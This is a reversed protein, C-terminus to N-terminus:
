PRFGEFIMADAWRRARALEAETRVTWTLLPWRLLQRALLPAMAPLARIDYAIFQPSAVSSGLLHRLFFRQWASLRRWVRPDDFRCSVLGRPVDPAAEAFAAICRPDFSAVAVPGGYAALDRAIQQEFPGHGTWGSKAEILLPVRGSIQDLLEPM